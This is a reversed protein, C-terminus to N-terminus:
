LNALWKYMFADNATFKRAPHFFHNLDIIDVGNNRTHFAPGFNIAVVGDLNIIVIRVSM